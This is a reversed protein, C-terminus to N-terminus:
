LSLVKNMSSVKHVTLPSSTTSHFVKPNNKKIKAFSISKIIKPTLKLWM